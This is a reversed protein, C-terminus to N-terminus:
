LEWRRQVAPWDRVVVAAYPDSGGRNKHSSKTQSHTYTSQSPKESRLLTRDASTPRGHGRLPARTGRDAEHFHPAPAGRETLTFCSLEGGQTTGAVEVVVLELAELRALARRVTHPDLGTEAAIQRRTTHWYGRAGARRDLYGYVAVDSASRSGLLPEPIQAYFHARSDRLRIAEAAM